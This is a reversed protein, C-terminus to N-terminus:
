NERCDGKTEAASTGSCYGAGELDTSRFLLIDCLIKEHCQVYTYIFVSYMRTYSYVNFICQLAQAPVVVLVSTKQHFNSFSCQIVLCM